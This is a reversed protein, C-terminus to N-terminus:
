RRASEALLFDPTSIRRRAGTLAGAHACKIGAASDKLCTLCAKLEDRALRRALPQGRFGIHQAPTTTSFGMAGAGDGTCCLRSAQTETPTAAREMSEEGMVTAFRRLPALFGVNIGVRASPRTMFEPFV